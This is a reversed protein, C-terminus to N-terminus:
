GKELTLKDVKLTFHREGAIEAVLPLLYSSIFIGFEQAQNM